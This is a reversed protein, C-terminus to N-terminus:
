YEFREARKRELVTEQATKRLFGRDQTFYYIVSRTSLYLCSLTLLFLFVIIFFVVLSDPSFVLAAGVVMAPTLVTLYIIRGFNQRRLMFWGPIATLFPLIILGFLRPDGDYDSDTFIYWIAWAGFYIGVAASALLVICILTVLDPRPTPRSTPQTQEQM